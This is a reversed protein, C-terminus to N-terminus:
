AIIDPYLEDEIATIRDRLALKEKKLRAMKLQDVYAELALRELRDDLMRHQERLLTLQKELNLEDNM